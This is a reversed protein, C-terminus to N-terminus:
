TADRQNVRRRVDPPANEMLEQLSLPEGMKSETDAYGEKGERKAQQKFEEPVGEGKFGDGAGPGGASKRGKEAQKQERKRQQKLQDFYYNRLHVPMNWWLYELSVGGDMHYAMQFCQQHVSM